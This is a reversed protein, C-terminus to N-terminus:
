RIEVLDVDKTSHNPMLIKWKVIGIGKAHYSLMSIEFEQHIQTVFKSKIALQLTSKIEITPISKTNWMIMTDKVYHSVGHFEDILSDSNFREDLIWKGYKLGNDMITDRLIEAKTAILKSFLFQYSEIVRGKVYILSDTTGKLSYSRTMFYDSKNKVFRFIDTYSSDGDVRDLYIYTVDTGPKIDPLNYEQPLFLHPQKTKCKNFGLIFLILTFVHIKM